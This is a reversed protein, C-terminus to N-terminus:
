TRRLRLFVITGILGCLMLMAWRDLIPAPVAAVHPVNVMVALASSAAPAFGADGCYSATIPHTRINSVSASRRARLVAETLQLSFSKPPTDRSSLTAMSELRSDRIADAPIIHVPYQLLVSMVDDYLVIRDRKRVSALPMSIDDSDFGDALVIQDIPM